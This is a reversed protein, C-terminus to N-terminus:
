MYFLVSSACFVATLALCAYTCYKQWRKDGNLFVGTFVAGILLTPVIYRFDMTCTFPYKFCFMVYSGVLFAYYILLFITPVKLEKPVFDSTSGRKKGVRLSAVACVMGALTFLILVVASFFMINAVINHIEGVKLKNYYEGFLSTKISYPAIGYDYAKGATGDFDTGGINPFVNSLYQAGAGSIRQWLSYGGLYQVNDPSATMSPVYGIPMGFLWKCRLPWWLGLPFCVACFLVGKKWLRRFNDRINSKPKFLVALIVFATGVAVVAGSFKSLMACGIFLALMFTNKTSQEKYWRVTYLVALFLFLTCLCDNNVSGALIYFTPHFAIVAFGMMRLLPKLKFEKLVKDAAAMMASSYFLTLYQVNEYAAYEDIGFFFTQVKMWVAALFHHLPPHYYQSLGNNYVGTEPLSWNRYIYWIYTNHRSYNSNLDFVDHQQKPLTVSLVYNLRLVFGAAFMLAIFYGAKRRGTLLLYVFVGACLVLAGRTIADIPTQASDYVYMAGVATLAPLVSAAVRVAVVRKTNYFYALISLFAAVALFMMESVGLMPVLLLFACLLLASTGVRKKALFAVAALLAAAAVVCCLKVAMSGTNWLLRCLLFAAGGGSATYLAKKWAQEELTDLFSHFCWFLLAAAAVICVPYLPELTGSLSKNVPILLTGNMAQHQQLLWLCFLTLLGTAVFAHEKCFRLIGLDAKCANDADTPPTNVTNHGIDNM